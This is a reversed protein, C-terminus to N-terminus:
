RIILDVYNDVIIKHKGASFPGEARRRPNRRGLPTVWLLTHRPLTMTYPFGRRESGATYGTGLGPVKFGAGM